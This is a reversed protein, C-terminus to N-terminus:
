RSGENMVLHRYPTLVDLLRKENDLKKDKEEVKSERDM